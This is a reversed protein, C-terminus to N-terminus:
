RLKNLERKTYELDELLEDINLGYVVDSVKEVKRMGLVRMRNKHDPHRQLYEEVSIKETGDMVMASLPAESLKTLKCIYKDDYKGKQIDREINKYQNISEELYRYYQILDHRLEKDLDDQIINKNFRSVRCNDKNECCSCTNKLIPVSIIRNGKRHNRFYINYACEM